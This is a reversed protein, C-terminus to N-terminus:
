GSAHASRAAGAGAEPAAAMGHTQYWAATDRM